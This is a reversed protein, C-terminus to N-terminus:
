DSLWDDTIWATVLDGTVWWDYLWDGLGIMWGTVLDGIMWGTVLDSM